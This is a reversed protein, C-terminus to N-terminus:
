VGVNSATDHPPQPRAPDDGAALLRHLHTRIDPPWDATLQDLRAPDDAYLARTAEEFHPFNGAITWLFRGAADRARRSREAAPDAQQRAADVLRRLAASIGHPQQELWQWHRPLLSVERSVVGLRPRGPGPRPAPSPTPTHPPLPSTSVGAAETTTTTTTTATARAIVEDPSGRFDFDVQRGTHDEFILLTEAPADGLHLKAARLLTPLDGTAILRHHAFATYTPIFPM